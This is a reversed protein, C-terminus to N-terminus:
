RRTREEICSLSVSGPVAALSGTCTLALPPRPGPPTPSPDPPVPQRDSRCVDPIKGFLAEMSETVDIPPYGSAIRAETIRTAMAWPWLPSNTLVGGEYRYCVGPVASWLSQGGLAESVSSGQRFHEMTWGAQSSIVSRSGADIAVCNQCVNGGQTASGNKAFYFPKVSPFGSSVYSVVDTFRLNSADFMTVLDYIPYSAGPPLYFISGAVTAGLMSNNSTDDYFAVLAGELAGAQGTVNVTGLVNEYRQKRTRYGLQYTSTPNSTGQPYDSFEGWCRRFGSWQSDEGEAQSQAGDFLKRSDKGWGACDEFRNDVQRGLSFLNSDDQGSTGDWAILRYGRNHSGVFRYTQDLGNRANFGHLHWYDGEVRIAAGRHEADLLVQGDVTARLVIPKDATGSIGAGTAINGRGGAYTGGELCLVRGPQALATSTVWTQPACPASQTCSSGAGTPSAWHTCALPDSSRTTPRPFLLLVVAGLVLLIVIVTAEFRSRPFM